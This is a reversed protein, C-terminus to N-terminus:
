RAGDSTREVQAWVTKGTPKRAHHGTQVALASVLPMGRGHEDEGTVWLAMPTRPSGDSVEVLCIDRTSTLAVEILHGPVHGHIVANTALESSVLVVRDIDDFAYAWDSLAKEVQRRVLTVCAATSSFHMRWKESTQQDQTAMAYM